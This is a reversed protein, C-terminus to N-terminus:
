HLQIDVEDELETKGSRTQPNKDVNISASFRSVTFNNTPINGFHIKPFPQKIMTLGWILRRLVVSWFSQFGLRPLSTNQEEKQIATGILGPSHFVAMHLSGM